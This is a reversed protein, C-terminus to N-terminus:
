YNWGGRPKNVGILNLPPRGKQRLKRIIGRMSYLDTTEMDEIHLTGFMSDEEEPANPIVEDERGEAPIDEQEETDSVADKEGGSEEYLIEAEGAYWGEESEGGNEVTAQEPEIGISEEMGSARASLLHNWSISTMAINIVLILAVVGKMKKKKM